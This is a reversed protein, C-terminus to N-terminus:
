QNPFRKLDRKYFTWEPTAIAYTNEEVIYWPSLQENEFNALLHISQAPMYSQVIMFAKQKTQPNQAIDVVLVAHGPSGGQILVDGIRIDKFDPVSILEKSLSLTGAYMFIKNLYERFTKYSYDTTAAKYWLTKSGEFKIRYGEAWQKYDVRFGNTFNFAIKDYQKEKYLYEARLRMVADACQQLDQKGVDIDLVAKAVSQNYKEAGNYLFVKAGHPQLPFHQLYYEFTNSANAAREFGKPPEFRSCIDKEAPNELDASEQLKINCSSFLIIGLLIEFIM